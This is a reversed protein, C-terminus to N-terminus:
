RGAYIGPVNTNQFKDVVIYGKDNTKVGPQWTSTIPRRNAVL